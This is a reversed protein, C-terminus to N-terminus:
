DHQPIVDAPSPTPIPTNIRSIDDLTSPPRASLNLESDSDLFANLMEDQECDTAENNVQAAATAGAHGEKPEPSPPPPAPSVSPAGQILLKAKASTSSSVDCPSAQLADSVASKVNLGGPTTVRQPPDGPDDTLGAGGDLSSHSEAVALVNDAFRVSLRSRPAITSREMCQDSDGEVITGLMGTYFGFVDHSREVSRHLDTTRERCM